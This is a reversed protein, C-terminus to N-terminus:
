KITGKIFKEFFTQDILKGIVYDIEIVDTTSDYLLSITISIIKDFTENPINLKKADNKYKHDFFSLMEGETLTDLQIFIPYLCRPISSLKFNFNSWSHRGSVITCIKCSIMSHMTLILYMLNADMNFLENGNDIVIFLDHHMNEVIKKFKHIFNSIEIQEAHEIKLMKCLSDYIYQFFLVPEYYEYANVFISKYEYNRAFNRLTTTKGSSEDGQIYLVGSTSYKLISILKYFNQTFNERAYLEKIPELMM